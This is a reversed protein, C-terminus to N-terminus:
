ADAAAISSRFAALTDDDLNRIPYRDGTSQNSVRSGEFDVRLDDGSRIALVETLVGARLGLRRAAEEFVPDFSDALVAGIGLQLLARVPGDGECGGGFRAAVLVDDPQVRRPFEPDVGTLVTSAETGLLRAPAEFGLM